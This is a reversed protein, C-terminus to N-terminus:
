SRTRAPSTADPHVLVPYHPGAAELRAEIEARASPSGVALLVAPRFDLGLVSEVPGLM